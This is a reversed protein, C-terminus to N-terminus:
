ARGKHHGLERKEGKLAAVVEESLRTKLEARSEVSAYAIHPTLVVNDLETFPDPQTPPEVERVDLGAGGLHGSKLAALLAKEDVLGGRGTNVIIVGKKVKSLFDSNVLHHTSPLYPVHLSIYDSRAQLTELDVIEPSSGPACAPDYALIQFGLARLKQATLRGILGYGLIGVTQSSTRRM